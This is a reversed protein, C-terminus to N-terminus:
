RELFLIRKITVRYRAEPDGGLVDLYVALDKVEGRWYSNTKISDRHPYLASSRWRHFPWHSGLRAIDQPSAWQFVIVYPPMEDADLPEIEHEIFITGIDNTELGVNDRRVLAQDGETEIVLGADTFQFDESFPIWHFHKVDKTFDYVLVPEIEPLSLYDVPRALHEWFFTDSYFEITVVPEEPLVEPSYRVQDKPPPDFGFGFGLARQVIGSASWCGLVLLVALVRRRLQVRDGDPDILAMCLCALFIVQHPIIIKSALDNYIGFRYLPALIFLAVATYFWPRGPRYGNAALAPFALLYVGFESFYHLLLYLWTEGLDQFDWIWSNPFSSEIGQYYLFLVLVIVPGVLCNGLTFLGRARTHWVSLALVPVMGLTVFISSVPLISTILFSREVTGRRWADHLVVLIIVWGPLVHMPGDFLFSLHSFFRYFVGGMVSEGDQTLLSFNVTWYDMWGRGISWWFTGTLYDVAPTTSETPWPSTLLYGILDVGGFFLFLVAFRLRYSGILRLFWVLALILGFCNWFFWALYAVAWGAFKGVLGPVVWYIWYYIGPMKTGAEPFDTIAGPPWNADILFKLNADYMAYDSFQYSFGGMGACAAVFPVMILIGTGTLLLQPLTPSVWGPSPQREDRAWGYARWASWGMTGVYGLVIPAAYYWRLWGGFFIVPATVLYFTTVAELAGAAGPHYLWDARPASATSQEAMTEPPPASKKKKPKAM